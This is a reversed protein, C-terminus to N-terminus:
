KVGMSVEMTILSNMEVRMQNGRIGGEKGGLDGTEERESCM